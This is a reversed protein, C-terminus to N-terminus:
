MFCGPYIASSDLPKCPLRIVSIDLAFSPSWHCISEARDHLISVYNTRHQFDQTPRSSRNCGTLANPITNGKVSSSSKDEESTLQSLSSTLKLVQFGVCLLPQEESKSHQRVCDVKTWFIESTEEPNMLQTLREFSSHPSFYLPPPLSSVFIQRATEGDLRERPRPPTATNESQRLPTHVLTYIRIYTSLGWKRNRNRECWGCQRWLLSGLCCRFM